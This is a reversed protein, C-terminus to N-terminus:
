HSLMGSVAMLSFEFSQASLDGVKPLARGVVVQSTQGVPTQELIAQSLGQSAQPAVSPWQCHEVYVQVPEFRHIIEETV